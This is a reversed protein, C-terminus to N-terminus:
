KALPLASSSTGVTPLRCLQTLWSQQIVAFQPRFFRALIGRDALLLNLDEEVYPAGNRVPVFVRYIARLGTLNVFAIGFRFATSALTGIV